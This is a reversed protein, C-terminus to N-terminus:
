SLSHRTKGIAENKENLYIRSRPPVLSSSSKFPQPPSYFCSPSCLDMPHYRLKRLVAKRRGQLLHVCRSGPVGSCLLMTHWHIWRCLTPYGLKLSEFPTRLTTRETGRHIGAGLCWLKVIAVGSLEESLHWCACTHAHVHTSWGPQSIIARSLSWSISSQTFFESSSSHYLIQRAWVLGQLELVAFITITFCCLTSTSFEVTCIWCNLLICVEFNPNSGLSTFYLRDKMQVRPLPLFRLMTDILESTVLPLLWYGASQLVRHCNNPPNPISWVSEAWSLKLKPCNISHLIECYRCTLKHAKTHTQICM